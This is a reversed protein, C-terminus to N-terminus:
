NNCYTYIAMGAEESGSRAAKKLDQCGSEKLGLIIKLMGRWYFAKSKQERDAAWAEIVASFDALASEYEQLRVKAQGRFNLYRYKDTSGQVARDLDSIAGTYDQLYFKAWGRRGFSSYEDPDIEIARTYDAIAGKFDQIYFKAVGRNEYAQKFGSDLKIARSYDEIAGAYDKKAIKDNGSLAYGLANKNYPQGTGALSTLFFLILYFNSRMTKMNNSIVM